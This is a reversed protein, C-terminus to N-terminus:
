SRLVFIFEKEKIEFSDNGIINLCYGFIGCSVISVFIVYIKEVKQNFLM